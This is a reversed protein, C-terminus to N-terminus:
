PHIALYILVAVSAVAALCSLVPFIYDTWHNRAVSHRRRWSDWVVWGNGFVSILSLILMASDSM